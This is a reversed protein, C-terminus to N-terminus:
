VDKKIFMKRFRNVLLNFALRNVIAFCMIPQNNLPEMRLHKSITQVMCKIGLRTNSSSNGDHMRYLALPVDVYAIPYERAIRLWMEDDEAVLNADFFGVVDLVNKRIMVTLAPIMPKTLLLTYMDINQIGNKFYKRIGTKYDSWKINTKTNFRFFWADSFVMGINKNKEMFELQISIRDPLWLDDSALFAVYDGTAMALGKNMTKCVGENQKNVFQINKDQNIKIFKEIREATRDTSGDNIIIFEINKYTQDIVSQLAEEIYLEHNYAPIIVSVLPSNKM